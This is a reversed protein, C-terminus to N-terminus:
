IEEEKIYQFRLSDLVNDNLKAPRGHIDFSFDQYQFSSDLRIPESLSKLYQKVTTVSHETFHFMNGIAVAAAGCHMAMQIDKPHGAGGCAIIPVDIDKVVSRILELDFGKKSGDQDISNIFIEGAGLEVARKALSHATLNTSTRGSHTYAIFTNNNQRKADISVVISQQGFLEKGEPIIEPHIILSSNIVVKDAGSRIIQKIHSVDTIGGGVTLPVQCQAAYSKVQEVTPPLKNERGDLHLVIIEDVGWRDLYNIAIEPIGIPLYQNFGISQVAINNKVLVTGIVRTKLM